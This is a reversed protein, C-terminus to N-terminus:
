TCLRKPWLPRVVGVLSTPVASGAPAVGPALLLGLHTRPATVVGEVTARLFCQCSAFHGRKRFTLSCSVNQIAQVTFWLRLM